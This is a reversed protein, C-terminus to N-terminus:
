RGSAIAAELKEQVQDITFSAAEMRPPLRYVHKPVRRRDGTRAHSSSETSTGTRTRTPPSTPVSSCTPGCTSPPDADRVARGLHRANRAHATVHVIKLQRLPVGGPRRRGLLSSGRGPARRVKARSTRSCTTATSTCRSSRRGPRTGRSCSRRSTPEGAAAPFTPLWDLHSVIENSVVGAPDGPWRIVSSGPLAGEWNSTRRSRFPTM